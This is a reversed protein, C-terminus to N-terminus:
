TEPKLNLAFAVVAVPNSGAAPNKQCYAGM